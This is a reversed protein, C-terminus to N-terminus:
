KKDIGFFADIKDAVDDGTISIDKKATSAVALPEEAHKKPLVPKPKLEVGSSSPVSSIPGEVKEEALKSLPKPEVESTVDKKVVKVEPKSEAKIAEKPEFFEEVNTISTKKPETKRSFDHLPTTKHINLKSIDLDMITEMTFDEEAVPEEAKAKVSSSEPTDSPKVTEQPKAVPASKSEFFEDVTMDESFFSKETKGTSPEPAEDKPQAFITELTKKRTDKVPEKFFAKELAHLDQEVSGTRPTVPTQHSEQKSFDAKSEFSFAISKSQLSSVEPDAHSGTLYKQYDKQVYDMYKVFYVDLIHMNPKLLRIIEDNKKRLATQIGANNLIGEKNSTILSDIEACFEGIQHMVKERGATNKNSSQKKLVSVAVMTLFCVVAGIVAGFFLSMYSQEM